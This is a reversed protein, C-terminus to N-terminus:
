TVEVVSNTKSQAKTAAGSLALAEVSALAAVASLTATVRARAPPLEVFTKNSMSTYLLEEVTAVAVLYSFWDRPLKVM